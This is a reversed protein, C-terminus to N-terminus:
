EIGPGYGNSTKEKKRDYSEENINGRSRDAHKMNNAPQAATAFHSNLIEALQAIIDGSAAM